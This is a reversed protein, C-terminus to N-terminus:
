VTKLGHGTLLRIMEKANDPAQARVHNNFFIVGKKAKQSMPEIKEKIWKDLETGSYNYDFQLQMNGSRWGKANRGHFRVYLMDPNTVVDLAPFLDPLDPEDVTVLTIKRKSLGAFVRDTAWSSHRFEVALPLGSLNDLLAALHKRNPPTRKFMPPLQILVAALQGAQMLPAVGDRFSLAHNPWLKPDIEHTLTRTLKVAFLFGPPVKQRQREVTEAKPMQYWTYNLETASFHEAYRPLMNGSRTGEPYFGADTWENYSYGSTGVFLQCFPANKHPKKAM